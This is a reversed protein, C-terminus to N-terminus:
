DDCDGNRISQIADRVLLQGTLSLKLQRLDERDLNNFIQRKANSWDLSKFVCEADFDSLGIEKTWKRIDAPLRNEPISTKRISHLKCCSKVLEMQTEMLATLQDQVQGMKLLKDELTSNDELVTHYPSTLYIQRKEDASM